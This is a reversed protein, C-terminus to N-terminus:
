QDKRKKHPFLHLLQGQLMKEWSYKRKTVSLFSFTFLCFSFLFSTCFWTSFTWTAADDAFSNMWTECCLVHSFLYVSLFYLFVFTFVNSVVCLNSPLVCSVFHCFCYCSTSFSFNQRDTERKGEIEREIEREIWAKTRKVFFCKCCICFSFWFSLCLTYHKVEKKCSRLCSKYM